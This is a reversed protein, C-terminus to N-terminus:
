IKANYFLLIINSKGKSFRFLVYVHLYCKFLRSKKKIKQRLKNPCGLYTGLIEITSDCDVQFIRKCYKLYSISKRSKIIWKRNQLFYEQVFTIAQLIPPNCLQLIKFVLICVELNKQKYLFEASLLVKSIAYESEFILM